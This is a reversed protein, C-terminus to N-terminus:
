APVFPQGVEHEVFADVLEANFREGREAKLHELADEHSAHSTRYHRPSTMACYVDLIKMMLALKPVAGKELGEPYGEGNWCEHHYRVIDVVDTHCGHAVLLDAGMTTHAQLLLWDDYSLLTKKMLVDNSLLIKGVDILLAGRALASLEDDDLGLAQGFRVAHDQLRKASGQVRGERCDIAEALLHLLGDNATALALAASLSDADAPGLVASSGPPVVGGADAFKLQAGQADAAKILAEHASADGIVAIRKLM